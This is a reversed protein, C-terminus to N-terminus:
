SNELTNIQSKLQTGSKASGMVDAKTDERSRPLATGAQTTDGEHEWLPWIHARAM